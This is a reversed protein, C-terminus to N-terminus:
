PDKAKTLLKGIELHACCHNVGLLPKHYKQALEKAFNMGVLLCPALGPANSVAILDIDELKIGSKELAENLLQDKVENHHQAAQAPIIGGKETTYSHKINALPKKGKILAISFTHATTEIGLTLLQKM